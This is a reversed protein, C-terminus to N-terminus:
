AAVTVASAIVALAFLEAVQQSAGLVDGTYGGLNRQAFWGILAAGFAAGILCGLWDAPAALMTVIVAILLAGGWGSATPTGAGAALGDAKAPQSFAMVLPMMGRSVACAAVLAGLVLAPDGIAAIAAARGAASVILAIAGYAGIRSDSMIALRKEPDPGGWIGDALDALGDEHLGGTAVILAVTAFLASITVPLELLDCLIYVAGGLTAVLIGAVPFAWMANALPREAAAPWSPAPFRTLFVISVYIDKLLSKDSATM